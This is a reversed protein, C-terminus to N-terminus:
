MEGSIEIEGMKRRYIIRVVPPLTEEETNKDSAYNTSYPGCKQSYACM